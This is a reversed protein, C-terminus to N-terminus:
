NPRVFKIFTLNIFVINTHNSGKSWLYNEYSEKTSHIHFISKHSLYLTILASAKLFLKAKYLISMTKALKSKVLQMHAKWSVKDDIIIGFQTEYVRELINQNM